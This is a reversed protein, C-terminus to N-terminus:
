SARHSGNRRPHPPDRSDNGHADPADPSANVTALMREVRAIAAQMREVIEVEPGPAHGAPEFQECECRLCRGNVEMRLGTHDRRTHGCACATDLDRALTAGADGNRVSREHTPDSGHGGPADGRQTEETRRKRFM